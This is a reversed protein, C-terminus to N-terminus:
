SIVNHKLRKFPINYIRYIIQQNTRYLETHNYEFTMPHVFNNEDDDDTM